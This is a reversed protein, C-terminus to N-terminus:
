VVTTGSVNDIEDIEKESLLEIVTGLMTEVAPSNVPLLVVVGFPTLLVKVIVGDFNYEAELMFLSVFVDTNVEAPECNVAVPMTVEEGSLINDRLTDSLRDTRNVV